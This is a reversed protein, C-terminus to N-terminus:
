TDSQTKRWFRIGYNALYISSVLFMYWQPIKSMAEFGMSVYIVLGPIFCMVLPITVVLLEFEDKWSKDAQRAFEMEWAMDATLGQKILDIKREALAQDIAQQNQVQQAKIEQRRNFYDGIPKVIAGFLETWIM